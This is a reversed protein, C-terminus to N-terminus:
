LGGARAMSRKMGLYGISAFILSWVALIYYHEWSFAKGNVAGWLLEGYARSPLIKSVRGVAEPLLEPPKWLGGAYTLPLYLMNGLPLAVKESVWLGMAIGMTAFCLGGAALHGYLEFWREISLSVPTLMLAVGTLVGATVFAMVSAVLMRAIFFSERRLPLTRVFTYWAHSREEALGHAFQLFMVGIIAFGLFSALLFNALYENKAEPVAFIVFFLTPFGITAVLYAPMRLHEFLLLRFQAWFGSM